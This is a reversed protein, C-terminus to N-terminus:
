NLSWTVFVFGLVQDLIIWTILKNQRKDKQPLQVAKISIAHWSGQVGNSSFQSRLIFLTLCAYEPTDSQTSSSIYVDRHTLPSFYNSIRFAIRFEM